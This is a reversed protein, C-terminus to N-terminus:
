EYEANITQEIRALGEILADFSPPATMFMEGMAAYDQALRDVMGETPSLRLSGLVATEYSASKDAFMLSKNHVVQELLDPRALAETTVGAGDLMLVDYYHRSLGDRLKANHHLAHLITVKEWFTREVALTPVDTEPDPLEDPFDEALHPIIPRMAFPETDGRAGFELKIRSKIYGGEDGGGYNQGYTFGYGSSRPYAFLVTQQDKDDPDLSLDWGESTGLAAEIERALVPMAITAVYAQAAAKLDKTRREREKGSIGAEMPSAVKDLLPASRSITLDIDESFRQIIDYAKSLSTGGKFTMHGALDMARVLRRLTWCVWFDKEIIIPTLDRRAAAEEIYARRDEAPRRAFEDM